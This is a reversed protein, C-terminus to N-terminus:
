VRDPKALRQVPNAGSATKAVRTVARSLRSSTAKTSNQRQVSAYVANARLQTQVRDEVPQGVDEVPYAQAQDVRAKM